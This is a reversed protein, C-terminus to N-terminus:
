AKRSVNGNTTLKRQSPKMDSQEMCELSLVEFRNKVYVLYKENDEGVSLKGWDIQEKKPSNKHTKKLRIQLNAVLPNHDSAIDAAPYTKCEKVNNRHRKSILIYDIQNRRVDGPSKWTYLLRKPHQFLTNTVILRNELCFQLLREGGENRTGIGFDGVIDQQRGKGIKANFDGMVVVM